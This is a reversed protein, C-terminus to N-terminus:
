QPLGTNEWKPEYHRPHHAYERTVSDAHGDLFCVNGKVQPNALGNPSVPGSPSSSRYLPGNASQTKRDHRAALLNPTDLAGNGDDITNEDEEYFLIKESANRVEVINAARDDQDYYGPNSKPQQGKGSLRSNMSYSFPYAPDPSHPKHGALDDSPCLLAKKALTGGLAQVIPSDEYLRTPTGQWYVFDEPTASGGYKAPVFIKGKNQDLYMVTATGMQRLNSMCAVRNANERAKSLAPLLISILLAIIGIVVLLEVLTFGTRQMSGEPLRNNRATFQNDM